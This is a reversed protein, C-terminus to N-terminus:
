HHVLSPIRHFIQAGVPFDKMMGALSHAVFNVKRLIWNRYEDRVMATLAALCSFNNSEKANNQMLYYVNRLFWGFFQRVRQPEAFPWVLKWSDDSPNLADKRLYNYTTKVTFSGNSAWQSILTDLGVLHKLVPIGLGGNFLPQCCDVWKVLSPKQSVTSRGWIFRWAINEIEKCVSIPIKVSQM